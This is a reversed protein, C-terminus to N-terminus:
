KTVIAANKRLEQTSRAVAENLKQEKLFADIDHRSEDLTITGEESHDILHILHYGFKTTVVDSTEGKKLKFAAEEFPQVMQGRGFFGLDGGKPASPCESINKAVADFAEGNKLRMQASKIKDMGEAKEKETANEPVKILIHSAHLQEPKKFYNPNGTYFAKIEDETVSVKPRIEKEIYSEIAVTREINSNLDAESLGMRELAKQYDGDTPFNKKIEDTRSKVQEPSVAIEKKRSEQYLLERDIIANLAQDHLKKQDVGSGEGGQPMARQKIRNIEDDLSKQSIDVGNVTAVKDPVDTKSATDKTFAPQISFVGFVLMWLCTKIL